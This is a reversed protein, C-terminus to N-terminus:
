LLSYIVCVFTLCHSTTLRPLNHSLAPHMCIYSLIFSQMSSHHNCPHIVIAHIFSHNGPQIIAHIFSQMFPHIIAHIFSYNCSHIIAHIYSHNCSYITEHIFAHVSYVAHMCACVFEYIHMFAHMSSTCLRVFLLICHPFSYLAICNLESNELKNWKEEYMFYLNWYVFCKKNINYIEFYM